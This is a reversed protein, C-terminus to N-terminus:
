RLRWSESQSNFGHIYGCLSQGWRNKLGSDLPRRNRSCGMALSVGLAEQPHPGTHQLPKVWQIYRSDFTRIQELIEKQAATGLASTPYSVSIWSRGLSGWDLDNDLTVLLPRCQSCFTRAM